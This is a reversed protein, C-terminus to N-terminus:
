SGGPGGERPQVPFVQRDPSSYGPQAAAPRWGPHRQYTVTLTGAPKVIVLYLLILLGFGFLLIALAALLFAGCGWEGPAYFQQTPAYGHAALLTSDQAYLSAAEAQKGHYTRTLVPPWYAPDGALGTGGWGPIGGNGM